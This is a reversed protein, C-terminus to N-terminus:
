CVSERLPSLSATNNVRYTCMCICICVCRQLASQVPDSYGMIVRASLDLDLHSKYSFGVVCPLCCAETPNLQM